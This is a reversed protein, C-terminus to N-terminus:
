LLHWLIVVWFTTSISSLTKGNGVNSSTLALYKLCGCSMPLGDCDYIWSWTMYKPPALMLAGTTQGSWDGQRRKEGRSRAVYKGAAIVRSAGGWSRCM